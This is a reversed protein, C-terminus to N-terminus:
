GRGVHRQRGRPQGAHSFSRDPKSMPRTMAIQLTRPSVGLEILNSTFQAFIKLVDKCAEQTRRLKARLRKNEKALDKRGPIQEDELEIEKQLKQAKVIELRIDSGKSVYKYYTRRSCGVGKMLMTDTIPGSGTAAHNLQERIGLIIEAGRNRQPMGICEKM